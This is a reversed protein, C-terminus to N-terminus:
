MSRMLRFKFTQERTSEASFKSPEGFSPEHFRRDVQCRAEWPTSADCSSLTGSLIQMFFTAVEFTVQRLNKPTDRSGGSEDFAVLLNNKACENFSSSEWM